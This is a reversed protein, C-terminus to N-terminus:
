SWPGGTRGGAQARPPTEDFHKLSTLPFVSQMSKTGEFWDCRARLVEKWTELKGITMKPGGSKLQVVDGVKFDESMGFEKAPSYLM